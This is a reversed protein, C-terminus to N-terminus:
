RRYERRVADMFERFLHLKYQLLSYIIKRDVYEYRHVIFNRFRVMEIYPAADQIVGLKELEKMALSSSEQLGQNEIALIRECVDIVIEIAM